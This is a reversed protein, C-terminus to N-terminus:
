ARARRGRLVLLGGVLLTLAGAASAPDMEPAKAANGVNLNNVLTFDSGTSSGPIGFATTTITTNFTVQNVGDLNLGAFNGGGWAYNETLKQVLTGNLYGSIVTTFAATDGGSPVDSNLTLFDVSNLDFAQSRGFETVSASDFFTASSDAYVDNQAGYWNFGAYGNPVTGSPLSPGFEITQWANAAAFPLMAAFAAALLSLEKKM